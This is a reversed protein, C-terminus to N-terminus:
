LNSSWIKCCIIFLYLECFFGEYIVTELEIVYVFIFLYIFNIAFNNM